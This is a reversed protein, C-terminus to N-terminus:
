EPLSNFSLFLVNHHEQDIEDGDPFTKKEPSVDYEGVIKLVM